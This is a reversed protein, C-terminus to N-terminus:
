NEGDDHVPTTTSGCANCWVVQRGQDAVVDFHEPGGDGVYSRDARAGIVIQGVVERLIVLADDGGNNGCNDCRVPILDM